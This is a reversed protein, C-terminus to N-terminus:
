LFMEKTGIGTIELHSCEAVSLISVHSAQVKTTLMMMFKNTNLALIQEPFASSSHCVPPGM